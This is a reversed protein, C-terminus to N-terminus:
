NNSSRLTEHLKKCISLVRNNAFTQANQDKPVLSTIFVLCFAFTLIRAKVVNKCDMMMIILCSISYM